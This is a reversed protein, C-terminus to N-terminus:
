STDFQCLAVGACCAFTGAGLTSLRVEIGLVSMTPFSFQGGCMSRQGVQTHVYLSYINKILIFFPGLNTAM